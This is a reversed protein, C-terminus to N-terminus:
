DMCKSGLYNYRFESPCFLSEFMGGMHHTLTYFPRLPKSSCQILSSFLCSCLLMSLQLATPNIVRKEDSLTQVSDHKYM